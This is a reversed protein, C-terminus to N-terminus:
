KFAIVNESYDAAVGGNKITPVEGSTQIVDVNQIKIVEIKPMEYNKM